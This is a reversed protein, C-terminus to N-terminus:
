IAEEAQNFITVWNYYVQTVSYTLELNDLHMSLSHSQSRYTYHSLVEKYGYMEILDRLRNCIHVDDPLSLGKLREQRTM